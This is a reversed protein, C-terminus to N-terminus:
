VGKFQPKRKEFLAKIAEKSDETMGTRNQNRAELDFCHELNEQEAANLNQKMYRLAVPPGKALQAAFEVTAAELQEDTVRRTALGLGAASDADISENLMFLERAKAPGLLQTAFYSGGFDGSYGVKLFGSSFKASDAVLRFDCALALGLGAGVINGQVAAVTPKPMQHLLRASEMSRRLWSTMLEPTTPGRRAAREAAAAKEAESLEKGENADKAAAIDGGACFDKGKGRLVVCRVRADDQADLLAEHLARMLPPSLANRSAPRNLGLTLVGDELHQLLIDDSM